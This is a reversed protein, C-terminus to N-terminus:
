KEKKYTDLGPKLKKEDLFAKMAGSRFSGGSRYQSADGKAYIYDNATEWDM